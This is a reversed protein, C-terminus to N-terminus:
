SPNLGLDGAELGGLATCWGRLLRRPPGVKRRAVSRLLEAQSRLLGQGALEREEEARSQQELQQFELDEFLKTETELAEAERRLQEQLQERVSEPCNDLQRQLQACLAQRAELHRRGAALEAREKDREKQVGTELALLKEQLQDAARQEQQLLAREAEREGQLLAREMEAQHASEQLQQELEKVHVKLQEVRGLVQAREEELALVEGQLRASPADEHAPHWAPHPGPFAPGLAYKYGPLRM